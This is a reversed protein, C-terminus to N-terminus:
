RKGKAKSGEVPPEDAKADDGRIAEVIGERIMTEYRGADVEGEWEEGAQLLNVGIATAKKAKVKVKIRKKDM